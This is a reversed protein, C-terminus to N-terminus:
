IMLCGNRIDMLWRMYKTSPRAYSLSDSIRTLSSRTLSMLLLNGSLVRMGNRMEKVEMLIPKGTVGVSM